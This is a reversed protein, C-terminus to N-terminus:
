FRIDSEQQAATYKWTSENSWQTLLKDAGNFQVEFDLMYDDPKMVFQHVISAAALSDSSSLLFSIVQSGDPNKVVKAPQFYLDSTNAVSNNGTNIRIVSRTLILLRWDCM